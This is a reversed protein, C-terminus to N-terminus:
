NFEEIRSYFGECWPETTEAYFNATPTFGNCEFTALTFLGDGRHAFSRVAEKIKECRAEDDVERLEPDWFKCTRCPM